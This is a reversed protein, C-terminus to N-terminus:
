RRLARARDGDGALFEADSGGAVRECEADGGWQIWEGGWHEHYFDDREGGGGDAFEAHGDSQLHANDAGPACDPHCQSTSTSGFRDIGRTHRYDHVRHRHHHVACLEGCSNNAQTFTGSFNTNAADTLKVSTTTIGTGSIQYAGTRTAGGNDGDAYVYVQYGAANAPLGAVTM